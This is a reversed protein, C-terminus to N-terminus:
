GFGDLLSVKFAHLLFEPARAFAFVNHRILGVDLEEEGVVDHEEGEGHIGPPPKPWKALRKRCPWDEGGRGELQYLGRLGLTM